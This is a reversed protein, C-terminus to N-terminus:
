LRRLFHLVLLCMAVICCRQHPHPSLPRPEAPQAPGDEEVEALEEDEDSTWEEARAQLAAQMPPLPAPAERPFMIGEDEDWHEEAALPAPEEDPFVRFQDRIPDWVPELFDQEMGVQRMGWEELHDEVEDETDEGNQFEFPVAVRPDFPPAHVWQNGEEDEMAFVMPEPPFLEPQPNRLAPEEEGQSRNIDRPSM